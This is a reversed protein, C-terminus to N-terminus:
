TTLWPQLFFSSSPLCQMYRPLLSRPHGWIVDVVHMENCEDAKQESFQVFSFGTGLIWQSAVMINNWPYRQLDMSVMQWVACAEVCVERWGELLCDHTKIPWIWAECCTLCVSFELANRSWALLLLLLSLNPVNFYLICVLNYPHLVALLPKPAVRLSYMLECNSNILRKPVSKHFFLLQM